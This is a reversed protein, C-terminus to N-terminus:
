AASGLVKVWLQRDAGLEQQVLAETRALNESTYILLTWFLLLAAVVQQKSLGLQLLNDLNRQLAAAELQLLRVAAPQGKLVDVLLQEGPRGGGKSGAALLPALVAIAPEVSVSVAAEPQREFCRAAQGASLGLGMLQSYLVGAREEAARSFLEPCQCLLPGLERSGIGLSRLHAAVQPGDQLIGQQRIGPLKGM